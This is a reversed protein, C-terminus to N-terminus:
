LKHEEHWKRAAIIDREIQGKLTEPTDFAIQGRLRHHFRVDLRAGVLDGQFNMLHTEVSFAHEPFTPHLGVSTISPYSAGRDLVTTSTVYVGEAPLLENEVDLNATHAGLTSGIGHGRVVTGRLAFPAEMLEEAHEVEGAAVDRRIETSSILLEGNFQAEIVNVGIGTEAGLHELLEVTGRRHVGFTFDYGVVLERAGLKGQLTTFFFDKPEQHAM